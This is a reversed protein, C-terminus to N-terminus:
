QLDPCCSRILELSALAERITLEFIVPGTFGAEELQGLFWAVPLDGEGLPLHDAVRVSGDAGPRRYADHLHVEVLRPLTRELAEEITMDGSYGALVHGTDLCVSLDFEEALELTLELPFEVNEVALLRPPRGTRELLAKVSHRAQEQFLRMVLPRVPELAEIQGIEAALAGTAHVVYAEPELPAMRLVGEVLADLSGQRVPQVPTSPDVSWLALHLTYSLGRSEKLARLREVSPLNFCQPFFIMLDPNLEILCFGLDAVREVAAAVDVALEAARLETTHTSLGLAHEMLLDPQMLEIGFRLM